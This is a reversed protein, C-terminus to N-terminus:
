TEALVREVFAPVMETAPGYLTERFLTAGQSPELNLEVTHAGYMGAQQVFGAAPYVNGSTGISLFLDCDALADYIRDMELPMEGFWVVHPRLGGKRGCRGCADEVSLDSRIESVVRCHECRMKLLEGHMHILNTSGARGHLDDINQTVLLVEGPWERELRAIAHHAPNPQIAEKQVERRRHNYFEHVLAPNRVFGDPTAVDELRVKAWIGDACRFTDLGSEKSIGAGTLIVIKDTPKLM